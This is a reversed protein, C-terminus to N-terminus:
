LHRLIEKFKNNNDFLLNTERLQIVQSNLQAAPYATCKFM